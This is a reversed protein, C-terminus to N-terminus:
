LNIPENKFTYPLIVEPANPDVLGFKTDVLTGKALLKQYYFSDPKLVIRPIFNFNRNVVLNESVYKFYRYYDHEKNQMLATYRAYDTIKGELVRALFSQPDNSFDDLQAFPSGRDERTASKLESYFDDYQLFITESHIPYIDTGNESYTRDEVFSSDDSYRSGKLELLVTKEASETIGHEFQKELMVGNHECWVKLREARPAIGEGSFLIVKIKWIEMKARISKLAEFFKEENVNYLFQESISVERVGKFAIEDIIPLHRFLANDTISSLWFAAGYEQYFKYLEPHEDHIYRLDDIISPMMFYSAFEVVKDAYTRASVRTHIPIHKQFTEKPLFDDRIYCIKCGARCVYKKFISFNFDFMVNGLGDHKIFHEKPNPIKVLSM